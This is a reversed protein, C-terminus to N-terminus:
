GHEQKTGQRHRNAQQHEHGLLLKPEEDFRKGRVCGAHDGESLGRPGEQVRVPWRFLRRATGRLTTIDADPVAVRCCKEINLCTWYGLVRHLSKGIRATAQTQAGVHQNAPLSTSKSSGGPIATGGRQNQAPPLNRDHGANRLM